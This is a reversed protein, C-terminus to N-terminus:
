KLCKYWVAVALLAGAYRQCARLTFAVACKALMARLWSVGACCRRWRAAVACFALAAMRVAFFRHHASKRPRANIGRLISATFSGDRKLFEESLKSILL